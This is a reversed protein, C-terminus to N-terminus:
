AGPVLSWTPMSDSAITARNVYPWADIRECRVVRWETIGDARMQAADKMAAAKTRHTATFWGQTVNSRGQAEYFKRM